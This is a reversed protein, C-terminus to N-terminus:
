FLLSWTIRNEEHTVLIRMGIRQGIKAFRIKAIEIAFLNLIKKYTEYLTIPVLGL